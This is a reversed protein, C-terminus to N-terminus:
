PLRVTTHELAKSCGRGKFQELVMPSVHDSGVADGHQHEAATEQQFLLLGLGRAKPGSDFPPPQTSQQATQTQQHAQLSAQPVIEGM